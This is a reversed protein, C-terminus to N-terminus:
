LDRDSTGTETVPTTSCPRGQLDTVTASPTWIMAGNTSTTKLTNNGTAITGLRLTVTTRVVGTSTTVTGATMTANFTATKGTKVYDRRLNVSGLTVPTTGSLVDVTDDTATRGLVAGDRLRVTVAKAAGNWSSSVKTLDVQTTWTYTLTDGTDARGISAGGNASQVDAGRLPANDVLQASVVASTLTQGKGDLLIGRVDYLGDVVTTTDWTCAYPSTTDTCLDTWTSTGTPAVQIRVSAVGASSSAAATVSVTGNLTPPVDVTISSITNDVVRNTVATSTAQNGAVDTAVARFSYTGDLLPSTAVRCSWPETSITCLDQWTSTGSRLHQIVVQAVGSDADAATATFTRTGSLPTGPDVMTVSPATNDVTVAEVLASTATLNGSTLVSRLDYDGSALGTTNWSCAYPSTLNTCISTWRTTGTPAYEVRVTNTVPANYVSTALAVTGRVVDGPSALVVLVNNAVTTRVVDSVSEYGANDTARARLSYQGDVVGAASTSWSCSYPAVTDTCITAWDSAGPAFVELTVSAIGTEGDAATMSVTVTGKVATGPSVVSVSPPTWDAAARVTASAQTQATFSASSFVPFAITLVGALAALLLLQLLRPRRTM